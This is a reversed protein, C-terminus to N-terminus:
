WESSTDVNLSEEESDRGAATSFVKLPGGLGRLRFVVQLKAISAGYSGVISISMDRCEVGRRPAVRVCFLAREGGEECLADSLGVTRTGKRGRQRGSSKRTYSTSM